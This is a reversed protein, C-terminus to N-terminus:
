GGDEKLKELVKKKLEPNTKLIYAIRDAKRLEEEEFKEKFYFIAMRVLEGINGFYGEEVMKDMWEKLKPPVRTNVLIKHRGKTEMIVNTNKNCIYLKAKM